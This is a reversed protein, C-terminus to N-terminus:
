VMGWRLNLGGYMQKEPHMWDVMYYVLPGLVPQFMIAVALGILWLTIVIGSM